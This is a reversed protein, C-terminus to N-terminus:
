RGRAQIRDPPENPEDTQPVDQIDDFPWIAREVAPHMREGPEPMSGDPLRFQDARIAEHPWVDKALTAVVTGDLDKFEHGARFLPEGM